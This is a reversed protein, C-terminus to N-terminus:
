RKASITQGDAPPDPVAPDAPSGGWNALLILIDRVGVVGDGDLDAPDCFPSQQSGWCTRVREVDANNVVGDGNVDVDVTPLPDPGPATWLRLLLLFDVIGVEGDGNLDAWCDDDPPCPGWDSLLRLFDLIGVVNDPDVDGETCPAESLFCCDGTYRLIPEGDSIALIVFRGRAAVFDATSFHGLLVRGTPDPAAQADDPTVFWAQNPGGLAMAGFGPWGPTLWTADTGDDVEVGITVFTDDALSPFLDILAQLPATDGGFVHQYFTGGSIFDVMLPASATGAVALLRDDPNDFFASFTCVNIGFQSQVGSIEFGLFEGAVPDCVILTGGLGALVSLTKLKM